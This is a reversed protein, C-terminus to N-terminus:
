ESLGLCLRQQLRSIRETTQRAIRVCVSSLTANSQSSHRGFWYGVACMGQMVAIKAQNKKRQQKLNTSRFACLPETRAEAQSFLLSFVLDRQRLQVLWAFSVGKQECKKCGVREISWFQEKNSAINALIERKLAWKFLGVQLQLPCVSISSHFHKCLPGLSTSTALTSIHWLKALELAWKFELQRQWNISWLMQSGITIAYAPLPPPTDNFLHVTVPTQHRPEVCVRIISLWIAATARTM